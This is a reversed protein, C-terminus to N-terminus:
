SHMSDLSFWWRCPGLSAFGRALLALKIAEPRTGVILM